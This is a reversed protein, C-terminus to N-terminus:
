ASSDGAAVIPMTVVVASRGDPAPEWSAGLGAAIRDVLALGLHIQSDAQNSQDRSANLNHASAVIEPDLGPGPDGIEVIAYGDTRRGAITVAGSGAHDVVNSLLEDFLLDLERPSHVACDAGPSLEVALLQGARLCLGHWRDHLGSLVDSLQRASGRQLLDANELQVYTILRTTMRELRRASRTASAHWEKSQTDPLESALLELMGLLGNLPTNIQHSMQGLFVSKADSAAKAIDLAQHLEATRELIRQDLEQNADYLSRLGDEAIQEADTRARRERDLRRELRAVRAALDQQDGGSTM